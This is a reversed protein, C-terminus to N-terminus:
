GWDKGDLRVKFARLIKKDIYSFTYLFIKGLIKPPPPIYSKKVSAKERECHRVQTRTPSEM